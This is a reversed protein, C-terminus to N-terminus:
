HRHKGSIRRLFDKALHSAFVDDDVIAILIVSSTVASDTITGGGHVLLATIDRADDIPQGTSDRIESGVITLQYSPKFSLAGGKPILTVTDSTADYQASAIAVHKDDKTGYEETRAQSPSSIVRCIRPRHPM